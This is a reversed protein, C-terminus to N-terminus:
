AADKHHNVMAQMDARLAANEEECRRLEDEKRKLEDELEANVQRYRALTDCANMAERTLGEGEHGAVIAVRDDPPRTERLLGSLPRAGTSRLLDRLSPGACPTLAM